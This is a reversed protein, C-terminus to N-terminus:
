GVTVIYCGWNPGATAILQWRGAFPPVVSTIYSFEGLREGSTTVSEVLPAASFSYTDLPRAANTGILVFGDLGEQHLPAFAAKTGRRGEMWGGFIADVRGIFEGSRVWTAPPTVDVCSLASSGTVDVERDAFRAVDEASAIESPAAAGLRGAEAVSMPFTVAEAFDLTFCGWNPGFTAVARWRGASPLLVPSEFEGRAGAFVEEHVHTKLPATDPGVRVWRVLLPLTRSLRLESAADRAALTLRDGRLEVRWDGAISAGDPLLPGCAEIAGSDAFLLPAPGFEYGARHATAEALTAELDPPALRQVRRPDDWAVPEYIPPPAPTGTARSTAEVPPPETPLEVATAAVAVETPPPVSPESSRGVSLAVSAVLAAGVLGAVGGIVLARARRDAEPGALSEGVQERRELNLRALVESVHYKAGDLSIGLREGIEANTLGEAVLRAVERQRDTLEPTGEPLRPEM